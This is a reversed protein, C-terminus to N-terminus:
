LKKFKHGDLILAKVEDGEMLFEVVQGSFPSLEVRITEKEPFPTAVCHMNGMRVKIEKKNGKVRIAGMIENVYSGSYHKFPHSLNWERDKRNEIDAKIRKSREKLQAIMSNKMDEYKKEWGDPQLYADYAYDMLLHMMPFGAMGENVFIAVGLDKEPMFSITSMYGPFGGSHWIVKRGDFDGISLGLGYATQQFAERRDEAKVTETRTRMILDRPFVQQGNLKGKNLQMKMWKAADNATTILGGASQMTNDKKMLYVERIDDKALGVYPLAMPWKKKEARSMYATTRDMGMPDFVKRELWEQWPVGTKEELIITYINYGLNTYSYTGRGAENTELYKMLDVLLKHNHDGTYALRFGISPHDVGASHTLLERMTVKDAQVSADFEVQPLYEALTGDLDLVGEEDLITALLGTFSKTISAIYFSTNADMKQKKKMDAYGFGGAYLTEDGKVVAIIAGPVTATEDLTQEIFSELQQTYDSQSPQACGITAVM